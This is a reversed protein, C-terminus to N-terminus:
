ALKAGTLRSAAVSEIVTVVEPEAVDLEQGNLRLFVYAAIFAVRKNGDLFAHNKALGFTYAAALTALDAQPAYAYKQLARALASELLEEDRIGVIGGHERVQAQQAAEVMARTLWRPERRRRAM